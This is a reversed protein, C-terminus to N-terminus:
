MVTSIPAPKSAIENLVRLNSVTDRSERAAIVSSARRILYRPPKYILAGQQAIRLGAGRDRAPDAFGPTAALITAFRWADDRHDQM